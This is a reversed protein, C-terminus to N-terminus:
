IGLWLREPQALGAAIRELLTTALEADLARPDWGLALQTVPRVVVAGGSVVPRPQVRHIALALTQPATLAVSSLLLRERQHLTIVAGTEAEAPLSGDQVQREFRALEGELESFGKRQPSRLVPACPGKPGVMAIAVDYYRNRQPAGEHLQVNADPVAALGDVVAKILFSRLGLELGHRARFAPRWRDILQTVRGLDVEEVALQAAPPPAGPWREPEPAVQRDGDDDDQALNALTAM